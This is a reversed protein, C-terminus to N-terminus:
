VCFSVICCYLCHFNLIRGALGQEEGQLTIQTFLIEAMSHGGGGFPWAPSPGLGGGVMCPPM